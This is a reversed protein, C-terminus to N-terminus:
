SARPANAAAIAAKLTAILQDCLKVLEAATPADCDEADSGRTGDPQQM